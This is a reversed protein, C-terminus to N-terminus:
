RRIIANSRARVQPGFSCYRMDCSEFRFLLCIYDITVNLICYACLISNKPILIPCFLVSCFLVFYCLVFSVMVCDYMTQERLSIPLSQVRLLVLVISYTGQFLSSTASAEQYHRITTSRGCFEVHFITQNQYVGM